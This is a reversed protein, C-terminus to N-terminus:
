LVTGNQTHSRFFFLYFKFFVRSTNYVTILKRSTVFGRGAVTLMVIVARYIRRVNRFLVLVFCQFLKLNTEAANAYKESNAVPKLHQRNAGIPRLEHIDNREV